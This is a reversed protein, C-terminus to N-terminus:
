GQKDDFVLIYQGQLCDAMRPTKDRYASESHEHRGHCYPCDPVIVCKFGLSAKAKPLQTTDNM